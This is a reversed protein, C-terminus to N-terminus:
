EPPKPFTWSSSTVPRLDSPLTTWKASLPLFQPWLVLEQWHWMAKGWKNVHGWCRNCTQTERSMEQTFHILSFTSSTSPVAHAFALHIRSGAPKWSILPLPGHLQITSVLISARPSIHGSLDDSGPYSPKNQVSCFVHYVQYKRWQKCSMGQYLEENAM